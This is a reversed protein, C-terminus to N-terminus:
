YAALLLLLTETDDDDQWATRDDPPMPAPHDTIRVNPAWGLLAIRGVDLRATRPTAIAPAHGIWTIAGAPAIQRSPTVVTPAHGTLGLAGAPPATRRPVTRDTRTVRIATGRVVLVGPLPRVTVPRSARVRPAHGLVVLAGRAPAVVVPVPDLRLTRRVRRWIRGPVTPTEALVTPAHGTIVIAGTGPRVTTNPNPEGSEVFWPGFWSSSLWSPSNWAM